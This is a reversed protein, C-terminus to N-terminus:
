SRKLEIPEPQEEKEEEIPQEVAVKEIVEDPKPLPQISENELSV